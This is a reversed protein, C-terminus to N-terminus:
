KLLINPTQQHNQMLHLTAFLATLIFGAIYKKDFILIVSGILAPAYALALLETDHGAVALIPNFSCYAFALSGLIAVYPRIRLCMCLFYFCICCLFFFNLPKPLYLQLLKDMIGFPSWVGDFILNYAPMGCFMSTVWLPYVGHQEKYIESQHKMAEAQTVDGQQMVVGSELAPKCFIVAVLLFVAIAILHPLLKKFNFNKM